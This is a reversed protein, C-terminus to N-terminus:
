VMTQTEPSPFSLGHDSNPTNKPYPYVLPTEFATRRRQLELLGAIVCFREWPPICQFKSACVCMRQFITSLSPATWDTFLLGKQRFNDHKQWQEGDVELVQTERPTDEQSPTVPGGLEWGWVLFQVGM